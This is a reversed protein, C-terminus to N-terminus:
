QSFTCDNAFSGPCNNLLRHVAVQAQLICSHCHTITSSNDLQQVHVLILTCLSLFCSCRKCRKIQLLTCATRTLLYNM